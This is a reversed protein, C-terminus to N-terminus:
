RFKKKLYLETQQRTPGLVPVKKKQGWRGEGFKLKPQTVTKPRPTMPEFKKSSVPLSMPREIKRGWLECGPPMTNYRLLQQQQDNIISQTTNPGKPSESDTTYKMM